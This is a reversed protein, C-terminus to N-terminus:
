QTAAKVGEGGAAPWWDPRWPVVAEGSPLTLPRGVDRARACGGFVDEIKVVALGVVGSWGVVTGVPRKVGEASLKVGAATAAASSGDSDRLVLVEALRLARAPAAVGDAAAAADSRLADALHAAEGALIFPAVRKRQVGTHFTRATLEQGLYCGKSFSVGRLEDLGMDLPLAGDFERGEPVGLVVRVAAHVADMAGDRLVEVNGAACAMDRWRASDAGAALLGRLGLGDHRPDAPLGAAGGGVAAWVQFDAGVNDVAVDARLAFTRLHRVLNGAHDAAVDVLFGSGGGDRVLHADFEVRGRANLFATYAPAGPAVRTVDATVISQLLRAADSGAVRVVGRSALRGARAAM